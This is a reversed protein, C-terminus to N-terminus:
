PKGSEEESYGINDVGGNSEKPGGQAANGNAGKEPDGDTKKRKGFEDDPVTLDM